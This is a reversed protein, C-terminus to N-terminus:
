FRTMRLFAIVFFGNFILRETERSGESREPHRKDNYYGVTYIWGSKM